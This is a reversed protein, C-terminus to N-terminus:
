MEQLMLIIVSRILSKAMMESHADTQLPFLLPSEEKKEQKFLLCACENQIRNIHETM